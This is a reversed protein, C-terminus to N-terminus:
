KGKSKGAAARTANEYKDGQRKPSDRLDDAGATGPKPAKGSKAKETSRTGAM